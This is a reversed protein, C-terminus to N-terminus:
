DLLKLREGCLPLLGPDIKIVVSDLKISQLSRRPFRSILRTFTQDPILPLEQGGLYLELGRVGSDLFQHLRDYLLGILDKHIQRNLKRLLDLHFPILFHVSDETCGLAQLLLHHLYGICLLPFSVHPRGVFKLYSRIKEIVLM